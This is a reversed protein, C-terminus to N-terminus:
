VVSGSYVPRGNRPQIERNSEGMHENLKRFSELSISLPKKMVVWEVVESCPPTTLSGQYHYFESGAKRLFRGLDLTEEIIDSEDEEDIDLFVGVVMLRSPDALRYHVFHVEADHLRGNVTHEAPTHFHYQWFKHEGGLTFNTLQTDDKSDYRVV